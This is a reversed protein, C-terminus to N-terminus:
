SGLSQPLQGRFSTRCSLPRITSSFVSTSSYQGRRAVYFSRKRGLSVALKDTDALSFACLVINAKHARASVMSVDVFVIVRGDREVQWQRPLWRISLLMDVLCSSSPTHDPARCFWAATRQESPLSSRTGM